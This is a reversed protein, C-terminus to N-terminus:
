GQYHEEKFQQQLSALYEQKTLLPKSKSVIEQATRADNALLDIVTMAMVKAPNLVALTYDQIFYDNGHITGTTGGAFPQIAPMIHSLDGMDSSSTRHPLQGVENNGVLSVANTQYLKQLNADCNTPLYGPFTTIHVKGGVALAGARLSRDVKLNADDIAALTKGRVFTEMRVDAPVANVVEGGKTIIPHVRVTDEDRFTERQAHIASLAIMAANLANIGRHPAAGSHASKGIFQIQKAVMGNSTGEMVFKKGDALSTHTMMVMDIDDFEGLKVLEPKGVLFSLKGEQRLQQRFELEIYEEAPIAMLAVRGKLYSLVEPQTLAIAVGILMGLQANHGCVHAAGTHPDADPHDPVILSDLEGLIAVTPGNGSGQLIGKIGTIALGERYPIGLDSFRQAIYRATKVERFGTEPTQLVDQAVKIIEASRNDIVACVRTKLEDTGSM